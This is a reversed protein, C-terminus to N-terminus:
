LRTSQWNLLLWTKHKRIYVATYRLNLDFPNGQVLGAVHIVGNTLATKKYLRVQAEKREMRDYRLRGASIAGLHAKKTELMANSHIYVLSEDLMGALAVTDRKIMTEFRKSEADLLTQEAKTQAFIFQASILCLSFLTIRIIKM